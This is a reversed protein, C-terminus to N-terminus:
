RGAGGSAGQGNREPRDFDGHGEGPWLADKIDGRTVLQNPRSALLSLIKLAQPPLDVPLGNRRFQSNRQDLEFVDFQITPERVPDAAM